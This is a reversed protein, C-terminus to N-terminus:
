FRRQKFNRFHNTVFTSSYAVLDCFAHDIKIENRKNVKDHLLFNYISLDSIPSPQQLIQIYLNDFTMKFHLALQNLASQYTKWSPNALYKQSSRAQAYMKSGLNCYTIIEHTLNRSFHPLKRMKQFLAGFDVHDESHYYKPPRVTIEYLVRCIYSLNIFDKCHKNPERECSRQDIQRLLYRRKDFVSTPKHAFSHWAQTELHIINMLLAFSPCSLFDAIDKSIKDSYFQPRHFHHLSKPLTSMASAAPRLQKLKKPRPPKARSGFKPKKTFTPPTLLKGTSTYIKGFRKRKKKPLPQPSM